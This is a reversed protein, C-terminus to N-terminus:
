RSAASRRTPRATRELAPAVMKALSRVFADTLPAHGHLLRHYIPGFILDLAVAVDTDVPLDGDAIRRWLIAGVNERRREVFWTRYHEAFEPDSRAKKLLGAVVLGYPRERLARVWPRLYGYLERELSATPREPGAHGLWDEYVADVALVEKSSWWRYITAKSVGAREAVEDMAVGDLGRELFLEEAAALIARRSRESRPRGRRRTVTAVDTM